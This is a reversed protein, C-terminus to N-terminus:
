RLRVRFVATTAAPSTLTAVCTETKVNWVRVQLSARTLHTHCHQHVRTANSCSASNRGQFCVRAPSTQLAYQLRTLEPAAPWTDYCVCAADCKDSTAALDIIDQADLLLTLVLRAGHVTLRVNTHGKLLAVVASSAMSIVSVTMDTGGVALMGDGHAQSTGDSSLWAVALLDQANRPDFVAYAQDPPFRRCLRRVCGALRTSRRRTSSSSWSRSTAASTSTTM